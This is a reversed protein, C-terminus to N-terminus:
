AVRHKVSKTTHWTPHTLKYNQLDLAVTDAIVSDDTDHGWASIIHAEPDLIYFAPNRVATRQVPGQEAAEVFKKGAEVIKAADPGCLGLTSRDPAEDLAKHLDMVKGGANDIFIPMMMQMNSKRVILRYVERMKALDSKVPDDKAKAASGIYVIAFNCEIDGRTKEQGSSDQLRFEPLRTAEDRPEIPRDGRDERIVSKM